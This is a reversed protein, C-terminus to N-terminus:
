LLAIYSSFLECHLKGMTIVPSQHRARRHGLKTFFLELDYPQALNTLYTSALTGNNCHSFQM